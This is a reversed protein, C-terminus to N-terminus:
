CWADCWGAPDVPYSSINCVLGCAGEVGQGCNSCKENFLKKDKPIGIEEAWRYIHTSCIMFSHQGLGEGTIAWDASLSKVLKRGWFTDLFFEYGGAIAKQIARVRAMYQIQYDPLKAM